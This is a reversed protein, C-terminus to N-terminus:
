GRMESTIPNRHMGQPRLHEYKLSREAVPRILAISLLRILLPNLISIQWRHYRGM